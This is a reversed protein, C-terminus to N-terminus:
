NGYTMFEVYNIVLIQGCCDCHLSVLIHATTHKSILARSTPRAATPTPASIHADGCHSKHILLDRHTDLWCLAPPPPSPPCVPIGRWCPPQRVLLVWWSSRCWLPPPSRCWLDMSLHSCLPFLCARLCCLKYLLPGRWHPQPRAPQFVPPRPLRLQHLHTLAHMVSRSPNGIEEPGLARPAMWLPSTLQNAAHQCLWLCLM